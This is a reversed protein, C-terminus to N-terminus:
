KIWMYAIFGTDSSYSTSDSLIINHDADKVEFLIRSGGVLKPKLAEAEKVQDAIKKDTM